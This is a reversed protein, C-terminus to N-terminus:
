LSHSSIVSHISVPSLLCPLSFPNTHMVEYICPPHLYQHICAHRVSFTSVCSAHTSSHVFPHIVPRTSPKTVLAALMMYVDCPLLWRNFFLGLMSDFALTYHGYISTHLTYQMGIQRMRKWKGENPQLVKLHRNCNWDGVLGILGFTNM